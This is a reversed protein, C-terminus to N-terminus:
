SHTPWWRTRDVPPTASRGLRRRIRRLGSGDSHHVVRLNGFGIRRREQQRQGIGGEGDSSPQEHAQHVRGVEMIGSGLELARELVHRNQPNRAQGGLVGPGRYIGNRRYATASESSVLWGSGNTVQGSYRPMRFMRRSVTQRGCHPERRCAPYPECGGASRRVSAHAAARMLRTEFKSPPIDGRVEALGLRLYAFAAIVILLLATLMGLLFPKM